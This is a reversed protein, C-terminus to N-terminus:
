TATAIVSAHTVIIRAIAELSPAISLANIVKDDHLKSFSILGRRINQASTKVKSSSSKMSAYKSINSKIEYRDLASLQRELITEIREWDYDEFVVPEIWIKQM